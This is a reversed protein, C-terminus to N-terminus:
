KGVWTLTRKKKKDLMEDLESLYDLASKQKEKNEVKEKSM